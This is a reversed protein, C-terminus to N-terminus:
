LERSGKADGTRLAPLKCLVGSLPCEGFLQRLACVLKPPEM